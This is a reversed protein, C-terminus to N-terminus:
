KVWVEVRRNLLQGAVSTACGAPALTGYGRPVIRVKDLAAGGAALLASRVAASRKASVRQSVDFKGGSSTFGVLYVTKGAMQPDALVGALRAVDRQGRADLTVGGDLFRISMSLRAADTIDSMLERMAALDFDRAPASVATAMRGSQEAFPLWEISQDILIADSVALQAEKSAAFRMLGRAAAFPPASLAVLSVQRGFPYEGSKIAFGTPRTTWGCSTDLSLATAQGITSLSTLGIADPDAAVAAAVDADRGLLTMTSAFTLKRSQLVDTAFTQASVSDAGAGYLKIARSPQGLEAWDSIGGSFVLAMQEITLAGLTNGPAVAVVTADLALVQEQRPPKPARAALPVAGADTPAFARDIMAIAAAGREVDSLGAATASRVVDVNALEAKRSDALRFRVEEPKQGGIQTTGAGIAAAYGRILEPMLTTAVSSAGSVILTEPATSRPRELSSAGTDAAIAIRKACADGVCDFRNADLTLTGQTMSKVVYRAGDAGKLEGSIEFGGGKMRLTVTNDESAHAPSLLPLVALATLGAATMVLTSQSRIM